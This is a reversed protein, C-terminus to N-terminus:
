SPQATEAAMALQNKLLYGELPWVKDRARERAIKRGLEADFNEPSAPASEGTVVFGNRLVLVCFTLVALGPFTPAGQPGAAGQIAQEATFYYEGAITGEVQALSVRPATLGKQQIAQEIQEDSM